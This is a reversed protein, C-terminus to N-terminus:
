CGVLEVWDLSTFEEGEEDGPVSPLKKSLDSFAAKFGEDPVGPGEGDVDDAVVGSSLRSYLLASVFGSM